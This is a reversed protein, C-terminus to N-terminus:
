KSKKSNKLILSYLGQLNHFQSEWTYKTMVLETGRKSIKNRLVDDEVLKLVIIKASNIDDPNVTFGAGQKEVLSYWVPFNSCLIPIGYTMYEFFKTLEKEYYHPTKPFIALGATWNYKSYIEEIISFPVYNHSTILHIRYIDKGSYSILINKLKIDCRGIVYLEANPIAKALRLMHFAGRDRSVVGTYLLKIKSKTNVTLHSQCMKPTAPYNLVEIANPFRYRYSKEAITCEMNRSVFHELLAVFKALLLLCGKPITQPYDKQKLSLYNDEHVDYVINKGLFYLAIAFPLFEPDHFQIIEAKIKLIKKFAVVNRYIRGMFGRSNPLWHINIIPLHPLVGEPLPALFDVKYDTKILSLIIKRYIRNDNWPHLTTVQVIKM